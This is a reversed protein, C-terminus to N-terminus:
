KNTEEGKKDGRSRVRGKEGGIDQQGKKERKKRTRESCGEGTSREM